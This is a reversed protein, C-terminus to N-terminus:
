HSQSEFASISRALRDTQERMAAESWTIALRVTAMTAPIKEVDRDYQLKRFCQTALDDLRENGSSRTVSVDAVVGENFHIELGTMDKASAIEADIIPSQGICKYATLELKWLQVDDATPRLAWRVKAKWPLKTPVGNNTPPLYRWQSVCTISAADLDDYGSSDQIVINTVAGQETVVFALTTTGQEQLRIANPPYYNVCIHPVGTSVPASTQLVPQPSITQPDSQALVVGM